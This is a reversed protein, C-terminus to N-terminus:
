SVGRYDIDLVFTSTKVRPFHPNQKAATPTDTDRYSVDVGRIEASLPICRAAANRRSIRSYVYIVARTNPM